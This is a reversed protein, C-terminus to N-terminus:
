TIERVDVAENSERNKTKDFSPQLFFSVKTGILLRDRPSAFNRFRFFISRGDSARIFGSRKGPDTREIEGTGREQDTFKLARWTGELERAMAAAPQDPVLPLDRLQQALDSDERWGREARLASALRYHQGAEQPRGQAALLDGMLAFLEWKYALEGPGLAADLAYDLAAEDEGNEHLLRALDAQIFWEPKLRVLAKLDGIAAQTDGLEAKASAIRRRFWIEDSYHFGTLRDLAENCVVILEEWRRLHELAKTRQGYWQELPSAEVREQGDRGTYKRAETALKDPDLKDCWALVEDAPYTQRYKLYRLVEFVTREYPSYNEQLTLQTIAEAARYFTKIDAPEGERLPKIELDYVCWGYLNRNPVFEPHTRYVERCLDLAERQRGLARLCFAKGWRERETAQDPYLNLLEDFAALAQEFQKDRRLTEAQDKLTRFDTM